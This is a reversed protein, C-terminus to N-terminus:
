LKLWLAAQKLVPVETMSYPIVAGVGLPLEFPARVLAMQMTADLPHFVQM